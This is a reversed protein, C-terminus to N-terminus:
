QQGRLSESRLEVTLDHVQRQLQQEQRHAEQARERVQRTEASLEGLNVM